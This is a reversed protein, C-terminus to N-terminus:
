FPKQCLQHSIRGSLVEQQLGELRCCVLLTMRELIGWVNPYVPVETPLDQTMQMERLASGSAKDMYFWEGHQTTVEQRGTIGAWNSGNQGPTNKIFTVAAFM